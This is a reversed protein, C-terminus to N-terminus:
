KRLRLTSVTESKNVVSWGKPLKISAIWRQEVLAITVGQNKPDIKAGTLDVGRLSSGALSVGTLDAGVLVAGTLVMKPGVIHGKVLKFGSPLLPSGSISGTSVGDFKVKTLNTNRLNAGFLRINKLTISGLNENSLDVGQGVIYGNLLQSDTDAMEGPVSGPLVLPGKVIGGSRLGGIYARSLDLGRLDFGRLNANKLNAQPGLLYGKVLKWGSPLKPNGKVGGSRVQQFSSVADGNYSDVISSFDFGDLNAGSLDADYMNASPGILYGKYVAWGSPLKPTGTIKGSIIGTLDVDSGTLDVGQLSIGTIDVKPGVIYGNILKYGAPLAKPKGTISGSTIYSLNAGTLDAGELNAGTLKAGMTLCDIAAPASCKHSFDPRVVEVSDFDPFYETYFNSLNANTLNANTFNTREFNTGVLNAGSLNAGTFNSVSLNLDPFGYGRQDCNSHDVGTGYSQCDRAKYVPAKVKDAQATSSSGAVLGTAILLATIAASVLPKSKNM